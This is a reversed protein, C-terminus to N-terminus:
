PTCEGREGPPQLRRSGAASWEAPASFKYVMFVLCLLAASFVAYGCRGHLAHFASPRAFALATLVFVRAWSMFAGLALSAPFPWGRRIMVSFALGVWGILTVARVSLCGYEVCLAASATPCYIVNGSSLMEWGVGSWVAAVTCAYISCVVQIM